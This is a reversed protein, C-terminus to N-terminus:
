SPQLAKQKLKAATGKTQTHVRNDAKSQEHKSQVSSSSSTSSAAIKAKFAKRHEIWAQDKARREQRRAVHMQHWLTKSKADVFLSSTTINMSEHLAKQDASDAVTYSTTVSPDVSSYEPYSFGFSYGPSYSNGHCLGCTFLEYREMHMYMTKCNPNLYYLYLHHLVRITLTVM